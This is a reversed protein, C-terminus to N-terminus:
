NSKKFIYYYNVLKNLHPKWVLDKCKLCFLLNKYINKQFLFGIKLRSLVGNLEGVRYALNEKMTLLQFGDILTYFSKSRYYAIYNKSINDEREKTMVSERLILISNENLIKNLLQYYVKINEDQIYMLVGGVYIFDYNNSSVKTFNELDNHYYTINKYKNELRNRKIVSSAIDVGDVVDFYNAMIEIFRGNGCGIDLAKLRRNKPIYKEIFLELARKEVSFRFSNIKENNSIYGGDDLKDYASNWFSDIISNQKM